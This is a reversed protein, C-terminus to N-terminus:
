GLARESCQAREEESHSDPFFAWGIRTSMSVRWCDVLVTVDVGARDYAGGATTEVGGVGVAM